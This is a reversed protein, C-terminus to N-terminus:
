LVRIIIVGAAVIAAALIRQRGFPEKLILAGIIAAFVVSTERLSSVVAMAGLSMAYIVLGYAASSALAGSLISVPARRIYRFWPERQRWLLYSGIPVIELVFLWLIYSAQSGAARVGLGDAITYGAIMVSTVLGWLLAHPPLRGLHRGFLGLSILGVSILLIGAITGGSLREGALVFSGLVVLVPALGRFLPYVQSLDGFRYANAMTFYYVNHLVVSTILAPWSEAAPLSFFPVLLLCLLSGFLKYASIAFLPEGGSKVLSNWMAHLLAALLVLLILSTDM